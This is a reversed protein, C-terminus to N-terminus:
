ISKEFTVIIKYENEKDTLPFQNIKINNELKNVSINRSLIRLNSTSPEFSVVSINKFKLSAYISYLGINAGVDWFVFKDKSDFNDIWDLTEPEKSFFTSVRWKTIENPTFFKLKNNLVALETYSKNELFEKFFILFSKKFLKIAITDFFFLFNFIIKSIKKTM